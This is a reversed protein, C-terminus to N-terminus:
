PGEHFSNRTRLRSAVASRAVGPDATVKPPAASKSDSSRGEAASSPAGWRPGGREGFIWPTSANRGWAAIPNVGSIEQDGGASPEGVDYRTVTRSTAPSAGM